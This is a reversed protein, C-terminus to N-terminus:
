NLLKSRLKSSYLKEVVRGPFLRSVFRLFPFIYKWSIGYLRWLGKCYVLLEVKSKQYSRRKYFSPSVTLRYLPEAINAGKLGRQIANFWFGIDENYPVDCPYRLGIDFVDKKFAVTPHAFPSAKWIYERIQADNKPYTRLIKDNNKENVEYVASGVMSVDRNEKFFSVQKKVRNQNSIDDADMRFIYSEDELLDILKNLTKALGLNNDNKVVKYFLDYNKQIYSEIEKPIEGDVGLYIHPAVGDYDQKVMSQVAAVFRQPSDNCYVCMIFAIKQLAGYGDVLSM